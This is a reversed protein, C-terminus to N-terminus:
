KLLFIKMKRPVRFVISVQRNLKKVRWILSFCMVLPLGFYFIENSHLKQAILYLPLGLLATFIGAWIIHNWSDRTTKTVNIKNDINLNIGTKIYDELNQIFTKWLEKEQSSVLHGFTSINFYTEVRQEHLNIEIRSKWTLPNFAILNYLYSGRTYILTTEDESVLTFGNTKLYAKVLKKVKPDPLNLQTSKKFIM